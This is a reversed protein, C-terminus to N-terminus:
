QFQPETADMDIQKKKADWKGVWAGLEGDDNEWIEGDYNRLYVTGDHTWEHVMDDKPCTWEEEKKKKPAAPVKKPEKKVPTSVAAVAAKAPEKPESPESIAAKVKTMTPKAAQKGSAEKERQKEAAKEAAKVEKERQKEAAKEEKERQKQAAKAEKERQKQAAKEEATMRVVVTDSSSSAVSETDDDYTADFAEYLDKRSGTQTKVTWYQKSLSMADKQIFMKGKQTKENISGAFVHVGDENEESGPMVIEEEEKEGTEKNKRTQHVTFSEWGNQRADALVYEVWKRPKRLQPPVQGKPMSGTKKPARGKAGKARREIEATVAKSMKFLEDTELSKIEDIHQMSPPISHKPHKVKM